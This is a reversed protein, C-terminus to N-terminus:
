LIGRPLSVMLWKEFVFYTIILTITSIIFSRLWSIGEAVRLIFVLAILSSAIFGLYDLFFAYGFLAGIYSLLKRWIIKTVALDIQVSQTRGRYAIIFSFISLGGLTLSLLTPFFGEGPEDKIWTQYGLSVIFVFLAFIFLIISSLLDLRRM